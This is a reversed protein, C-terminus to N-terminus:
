EKEFEHKREAARNEARELERPTMDLDRTYGCLLCNESWKYDESQLYLDGHCRPCGKLKWISM